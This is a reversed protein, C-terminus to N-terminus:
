AKEVKTVRNKIEELIDAKFAEYSVTKSEQEGYKRVNVANQEIEQDGIVLMYPIKHTQADRIKYGLKEGRLDAHARIGVKKLDTVLNKVYDIHVDAVPIIQVQTPALWTPFAGAFHEILIAFFRDLSGYIARHIVVPRVKENNEDIYTLDFKEPMQYDLQITACQHSRGIADKIHFDIKPGYFAGDGENITYPMNIAHLVRELAAEAQDWMEISGMHDEPRTSLEVTFEFGFTNYIKGILQFINKIESEIQDPRVFIHADDQCFTRVRLMGNLAGSLEHRHVQGFEAIRIPLDRYSHLTDKYILMHGPCNMPKLAYNVDDVKTFYMNEHYHDWHGSNEWLRQNMMLPTRVEDYDVQRQLERSFNELETRIIQGNTLYFPMGPAEESFMFLELQKGLKRHDRKAAEELFHLYDDLDKQKLFGVGYIRQLMQNDSNGRWYAGSVNMLKFIKIKGTSPLHPGRCLDVYEGQSYITITADEPLDRILELKLHDNLKTFLDIAEARSVEKRVIPLNESIIKKMEKEIKPFDEKSLSHEMDVDYYFGNKIVPGIGLKVDPYIRRLAQALLHASSHRMIELGDESDQTVIEIASDEEIPRTLDYLDGNVKGAVSKKKLSSSISEAVQESTVGKPFERVSGDPFTLSVSSM